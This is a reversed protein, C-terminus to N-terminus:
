FGQPEPDYFECAPTDVMVLKAKKLLITREEGMEDLYVLTAPIKQQPLGLIELTKSASELIEEPIERPNGALCECHFVPILNQVPAAYRCDGCMGEFLGM